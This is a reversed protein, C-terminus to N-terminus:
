SLFRKHFLSPASRVLDDDQYSNEKEVRAPLGARYSM